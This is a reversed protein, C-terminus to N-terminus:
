VTDDVACLVDFAASGFLSWCAECCVGMPRRWFSGKRGERWLGMVGLFLCRLVSVLAFHFGRREDM